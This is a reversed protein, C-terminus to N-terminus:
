EEGDRPKDLPRMFFSQRVLAAPGSARHCRLEIVFYEMLGYSKTAKRSLEVIQLTYTIADGVYLPSSYRISEDGHLLRGMEVGLENILLQTKNRRFTNVYTPPAIPRRLPTQAAYAPDLFLPNHDGLADCFRKVKTPTIIEVFPGVSSGLARQNLTHEKLYSQGKDVAM